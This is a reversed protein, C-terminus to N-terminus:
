PNSEAWHKFWAMHWDIFGEDAFHEGERVTTYRLVFGMLGIHRVPPGLQVASLEHEGLNRIVSYGQLFSALRRQRRDEAEHTVNMWRDSALFVGIDLARWGYGSSDFDFLTPLMARTM